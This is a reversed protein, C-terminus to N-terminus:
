EINTPTWKGQVLQYITSFGSSKLLEAMEPFMFDLSDPNHADSTIIVKANKEALRKLLFPAPYPKDCYGRYMGGTNVEFLCGAEIARDLGQLAINQYEPSDEDFYRNGRNLKTIIDFHGIIDPKMWHPLEGMQEYFSRLMAKVDGHFGQNLCAEMMEHTDEFTYPIGTEPSRLYHMSGIIYDFQSRDVTDSYADWELGLSISIQSQYAQKLRNIEQCYAQTGEESMTWGSDFSLYSHGSFGLSTFGKQIAGLVMEEATNKGDCFNTHTHANSCFKM